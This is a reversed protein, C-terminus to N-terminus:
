VTTQRSIFWGWYCHVQDGPSHTNAWTISCRYKWHPILHGGKQTVKFEQKSVKGAGEYMPWDTIYRIMTLEVAYLNYTGSGPEKSEYVQGTTEDYEYYGNPTLGDASFAPVPTAQTVLRPKLPNTGNMNSNIAATLDVQYDGDGDAPIIKGYVVNCNGTGSVPTVPTAPAFVEMRCTDGLHAGECWVVGGVLDIPDAVQFIATTGTAGTATMLFRPGAGRIGNDIDDGRSIFCARHNSPMVTLAVEQRDDATSRGKNSITKIISISANNIDHTENSPCVTPRSDGWAYKWQAEDNCYFRYYNVKETM